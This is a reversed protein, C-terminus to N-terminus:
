RATPLDSYHKPHPHFPVRKLWLRLAQWYIAAMVKLTMLPFATLVVALSAASIPVRQMTLTADFVTKEDRLNEMYVRLNDAPASLRWHYHMDMPLFPSVHFQKDFCWDLNGARREAASADLVYMHREGWPTNDVEAVVCELETGAAAFCYYLSVPNFCYGFYRFHTLLRIPGGPRRGTRQEVLNRISVDLPVGPDGYHDARSFRAPRPREHSWLWRRRFLWPLEELDIYMM